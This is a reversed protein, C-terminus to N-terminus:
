ALRVATPDAAAAAAGDAPADRGRRRPGRCARARRRNPSGRAGGAARRAPRRGAEARLRLVAPETGPDTDDRRPGSHAGEGGSFALATPWVVAAHAKGTGALRGGLAPGDARRARRGRGGDA